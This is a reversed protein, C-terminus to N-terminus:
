EVTVVKVGRAYCFVATKSYTLIVSNSVRFALQNSADKETCTMISTGTGTTSGMNVKQGGIAAMAAEFRDRCAREDATAKSYSDKTSFDFTTGNFAPWFEDKMENISPMYWGEGLDEIWEMAYTNGNGYDEMNRILDTNKYEVGLIATAGTYSRAGTVSNSTSWALQAGRASLIKCEGPVDPNEWFIIGEAVGNANVYATGIRPSAAKQTVVVEKSIEDSRITVTATRSQATGNRALTQLHLTKGRLSASLWSASSNDVTVTSAWTCVCDIDAIEGNAFDLTASSGVRIEPSSLGSRQITASCINEFATEEPLYVTRFAYNEGALDEVFLSTTGKNVVLTKDGGDKSSYTLEMYLYRPSTSHHIQFLCLGESNRCASIVESASTSERFRDGYSSASATVVLSNNGKDDHALLEFIHSGEAVDEIIFESDETINVPVDQHHSKNDWYVLIGKIRPDNQAPVTFKVRNEGSFAEVGTLKSMYVVPTDGIFEQYVTDMRDCSTLLVLPFLLGALLFSRYSMIAQKNEKDM